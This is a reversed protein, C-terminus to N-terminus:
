GVYESQGAKISARKTVKEGNTSQYRVVVTTDDEARLVASEIRGDRWSLHEITVAGRARLGTVTGATWAPPLAVPRRM